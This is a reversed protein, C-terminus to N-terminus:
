TVYNSLTWFLINNIFYSHKNIIASYPLIEDL